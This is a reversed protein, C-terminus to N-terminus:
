AAERVVRYEHHLGRLIPTAIVRCREPLHRGVPGASGSPHRILFGQDWAPMRVGRNYHTGM